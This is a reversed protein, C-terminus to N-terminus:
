DQLTPDGGLVSTGVPADLDSGLRPVVEGHEVGRPGEAINAIAVLTADGEVVLAEGGLGPEPPDQEHLRVRGAVENQGAM